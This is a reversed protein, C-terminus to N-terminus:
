FLRLTCLSLRLTPSPLSCVYGQLLVFISFSKARKQLPFNALRTAALM